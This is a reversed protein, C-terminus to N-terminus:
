EEGIFKCGCNKAMEEVIVENLLDGLRSVRDIINPIDYQRAKHRILDIDSQVFELTSLAELLNCNKSHTVIDELSTELLAETNKLIEPAEEMDTVLKIVELRLDRLKGAPEGPNGPNEVPKKEERPDPVVNEVLYQPYPYRIRLYRGAQAESTANTYRFVEKGVQRHCEILPTVTARYYM